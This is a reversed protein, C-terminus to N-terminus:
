FKLKFFVKNQLRLDIYELRNRKEKINSDLILKLNELTIKPAIKSDLIAFWKENEGSASGKSFYIEYKQVPSGGETKITIKETKLNLLNEAGRTFEMLNIFKEQELFRSSTDPNNTVVEFIIIKKESLERVREQAEIEQFGDGNEDILFCKEETKCYIGITQKEEFNIILGNPFDKKIKVSKVEGINKLIKQIIHKKRLIFINDRPIILFLKKNLENKLIEIVDPNLTSNNEIKINKVRFKPIYFLAIFSAALFIVLM